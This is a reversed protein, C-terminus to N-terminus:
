GFLDYAVRYTNVHADVIDAIRASYGGGMCVVVPINQEQAYKLVL